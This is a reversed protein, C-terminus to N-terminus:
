SKRRKIRYERRKPDNWGNWSKPWWQDAAVHVLDATVAGMLFLAGLKPYTTIWNALFIPHSVLYNLAEEFSRWQGIFFGWLTRTILVISALYLLRLIASVGSHSLWSRHPLLARYPAWIGSFSRWRKAVSPVMDLDPSLYYTCVAHSTAAVLGAASDKTVLFVSVGVLPATAFGLRDHVRASPM